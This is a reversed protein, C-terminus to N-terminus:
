RACPNPFGLDSAPAQDAEASCEAGPHPDLDLDARSSDDLSLREHRFEFRYKTDSIEIEDSVLRDEGTSTTGADKTWALCWNGVPAHRV